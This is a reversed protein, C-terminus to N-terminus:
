GGRRVLVTCCKREQVLSAPLQQLQTWPNEWGDRRGKSLSKEARLLTGWATLQVRPDDDSMYQRALTLYAPTSRVPSTLRGLSIFQGFPAVGRAGVLSLGGPSSKFAMQHEIDSFDKLRGSGDDDLKFRGTFVGSRGFPCTDELGVEDRALFSSSVLRFTNPSDAFERVSPLSPSDTALWTGEWTTEGTRLDTHVTGHWYYLISRWDSVAGQEEDTSTSPAPYKAKKRSGTPEEKDRKRPM